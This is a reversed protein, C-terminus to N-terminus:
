DFSLYRTPQVEPEVNLLPQAVNDGVLREGTHDAM